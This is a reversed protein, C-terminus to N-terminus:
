QSPRAFIEPKPLPDHSVKAKWGKTLTKKDAVFWVDEGRVMVDVLQKRLQDRYRYGAPSGDQFFFMEFESPGPVRFRIAPYGLALM